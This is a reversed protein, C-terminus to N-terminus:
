GRPRGAAISGGLSCSGVLARMLGPVVVPTWDITALLKTLVPIGNTKAGVTMQGLVATGTHQCLAALLHTLHGAADRAGRLSKGDLAIIRRGESHSTRLWMWAGILADLVGPDLRQLCAREVDDAQGAVCEVLAAPSDLLVGMPVAAALVVREVARPPGQVGASVQERGLLCLSQVVQEGGVLVDLDLRGPADVLAHDGGVACGVAGSASRQHRLEDLREAVTDGSRQALQVGEPSGQVSAGGVDQGVEVLGAGAVAGGLRDVTAELM